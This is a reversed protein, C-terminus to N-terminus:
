PRTTSAPADMPTSVASSTARASCTTPRSAEGRATSRPPDYNDADIERLVVLTNRPAAQALAEAAPAAAGMAVMGALLWKKM